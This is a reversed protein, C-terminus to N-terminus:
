PSKRRADLESPLIYLFRLLEGTFKVLQAADDRSVDHLPDFHAGKNGILRVETAWDALTPHLLGSQKLRELRQALTGSAQGKDEAIAELTRRAMVASARPCNASLTLQAEGFASAIEAPVAPHATTGPLPWWHVGRWTIEGTRGGDRRSVGDALQEEVVSVGQHCHRCIFVTVQEYHTPTRGGTPELMVGGDFTFPITGIAEFSSLRDCRPCLGSPHTSDPPGEHPLPVPEGRKGKSRGFV